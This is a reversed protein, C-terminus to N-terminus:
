LGMKFLPAAGQICETGLGLNWKDWMELVAAEMHKDWIMGWAIQGLWQVCAKMTGFDKLKKEGKIDIRPLLFKVIAYANKRNLRPRRDGDM